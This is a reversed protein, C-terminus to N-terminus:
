ATIIFKDPNNPSGSTYSVAISFSEAEGRYVTLNAGNSGTVPNLRMGDLLFADDSTYTVPNVKGNHYINKGTRSIISLGGISWGYGAIGSGTQSNYTIGVSPDLGNTGPPTYIPITYTAAGTPSTGAEGEITGVPRALDINKFFNASTYLPSYNTQTLGKNLFVM